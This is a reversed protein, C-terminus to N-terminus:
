KECIFSKVVYAIHSIRCSSHHWPRKKKPGPSSETMMQLIMKRDGEYSLARGKQLARLQDVAAKPTSWNKYQTERDAGIQKETSLIKMDTIGITGLYGQIRAPGGAVRMLVDSATGDSEEIAYKILDRVSIQTGKPFNDQLPSHQNPGVIDDKTVAIPEELDLHQYEYKKIVALSIPLKYVSQM